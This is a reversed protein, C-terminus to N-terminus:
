VGLLEAIKDTAKLGHGTLVVVTTEDTRITGDRLLVSLAAVGTAATPEVFLGLHGLATLVPGIDAEPVAVVGGQSRRLARLVEATRVPKVTAIGDRAMDYHDFAKGLQESTFLVSKVTGNSAKAISEGWAQFSPNLPHKPPVWTSLKLDVPKDQALAPSWALALSAAIGIFWGRRM